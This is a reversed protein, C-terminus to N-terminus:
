SGPKMYAMAAVVLAALAVLASFYSVIYNRDYERNLEKRLVVVTFLLVGAMMALFWYAVLEASTQVMLAMTVSLIGGAIVFAVLLPTRLQQRKKSSFIMAGCVAICVAFCSWFVGFECQLNLAITIDRTLKVIALIGVTLVIAFGVFVSKTFDVLIATMNDNEYQEKKRTEEQRVTEQNALVIIEKLKEYDIEAIVTKRRFWSM